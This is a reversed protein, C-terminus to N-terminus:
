RLEKRMQRRSVFATTAAVVSLCGLVVVTAASTSDSTKALYTTSSSMDNSSNNTPPIAVPDNEEVADEVYTVTGSLEFVRSEWDSSGVFSCLAQECTGWEQKLTMTGFASYEDGLGPLYSNMAVTYSRQMDLPSGGVAISRIREGESQNWDITM